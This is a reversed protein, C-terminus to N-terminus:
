AEEDDTQLAEFCSQCYAAYDMDREGDASEVESMQVFVALAGCEGCELRKGSALILIIPQWKPLAQKQEDDM